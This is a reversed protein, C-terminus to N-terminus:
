FESFETEQIFTVRCPIQSYLKDVTVPLGSNNGFNCRAVLRQHKLPIGFDYVDLFFFCNKKRQEKLIKKAGM